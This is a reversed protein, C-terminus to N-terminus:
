GEEKDVTWRVDHKIAISDAPIEHSAVSANERNGHIFVHRDAHYGEPWLDLDGTLISTAEERVSGSKKVLGGESSKSSDNGASVHGRGRGPMVSGGITILTENRQLQISNGHGSKRSMEGLRFVLRLLPRMTPLCVTVIGVAAEIISWLWANVLPSSLEPMNFRNHFDLIAKLRIFSIVVAFSGVLFVGAIAVKQHRPVQLRRVERIPLALIVLDQILHPPFTGWYIHSHELCFGDIAPEWAKYVPQCRLLCLLLTAVWWMGLTAGVIGVSLKMFRTPFIRYFMALLSAKILPLLTYYIPYQIYLYILTNRLRDPNTAVEKDFNKGIGGQYVAAITTGTGVALLPLCTLILWDDM